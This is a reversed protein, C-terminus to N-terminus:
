KPKRSRTGSTSAPRRTTNAGGTAILNKAQQRQAARRAARLFDGPNGGSNWYAEAMDIGSSHWVVAVQTMFDVTAKGVGDAALEALLADGLLRRQLETEQPGEFRLQPPPGEPTKGTRQLEGVALVMRVCWLGVELDGEPVYYFKSPQGTEPDLRGPLKLRPDFVQDLAKFSM